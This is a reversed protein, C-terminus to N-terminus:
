SAESAPVADARGAAERADGYARIAAAEQVTWSGQATLTERRIREPLSPREPLPVAGAPKPPQPTALRAAKMKAQVERALRQGSEHGELSARGFLYPLDCEIEDLAGLEGAVSQGSLQNIIFPLLHEALGRAGFDNSVSFERIQNALDNVTMSM